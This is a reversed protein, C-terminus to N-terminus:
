ALLTLLNFAVSTVRKREEETNRLSAGDSEPHQNLHTEIISTLRSRFAKALLLRSGNENYKLIAAAPARRKSKPVPLNYEVGEIHDEVRKSKSM